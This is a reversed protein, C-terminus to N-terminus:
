AEAKQSAEELKKSEELTGDEKEGTKWTGQRSKKMYIWYALGVVVAALILGVVIGVALKAQDNSDDTQEEQRNLKVEEYLASVNISKTSQGLSNSVTCSVTLNATPVITIKFTISGDVYQTETADTGNISWMVTPKPSGEAECSLVKHTDDDSRQKSLSKIVPAGEVTLEFSHSKVLGAMSVICEYMGSDTYTLKDFKPPSSLKVSGKKWSVQVEGSADVQQTVELSEGTRKTIKGSPSFTVDLYNVTINASSELDEDDVLSCKYEGSDARTVNTLTYTDSDEVTVKEGKVHFTFSSPPPNGDAECKLTVSDGEMFPGESIVQLSVKETPFNITFLVPSSVLDSALSHQVACTFKADKDEKGATYQLKSSTSSLGTGSDTEVTTTIIIDTGDNELAINDRYWTINAAPYADTTTCVGLQALKGLEMVAAPDTVEPASPAKQITVHIPFELIDAGVVVMCTFVKEDTLTTKAIHLSLDESVSVRDQYEESASVTANQGRSKVILDGSSGDAKAYKWKTIIIDAPNQGEINCPVVVTEGYRGTVTALGSAQYLLSALLVGVSLAASLM